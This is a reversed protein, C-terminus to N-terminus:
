KGESKTYAAAVYSVSSHDGPQGSQAYHLMEWAGGHLVAMALQIPLRGCITNRSTALYDAFLEVSGSMIAGMAMMDQSEVEDRSFARFNYNVGWHCFDSSVVLLTKEGLLARVADEDEETFMRSVYLPVIPISKDLVAQLFPIQMEISHEDADRKAELPPFTTPVVPVTGVPTSWHRYSSCMVPPDDRRAAHLVGLIVVKDYGYTCLTGYAYGATPGSYTYGAHPVILALPRRAVAATRHEAAQLYRGINSLVLAKERPYWTGAHTPPRISM